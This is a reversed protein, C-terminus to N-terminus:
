DNVGYELPALRTSATFTTPTQREDTPLQYTIELNVDYATGYSSAGLATVPSVVFGPEGNQGVVPVNQAIVQPQPPSGVPCAPSVPQTTELVSGYPNPTGVAVPAPTQFAITVDWYCLQPTGNFTPVSAIDLTSVRTFELISGPTSAPQVVIPPPSKPYPNDAIDVSAQRMAEDIESIGIRAQQEASLHSETFSNLAVVRQFEFAALSMVFGLVIMAVLLEVLTLGRQRKRRVTKM